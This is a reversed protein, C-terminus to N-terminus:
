KTNLVVSEYDVKETANEVDASTIRVTITAFKEAISPYKKLFENRVSEAEAKLAAENKIDVAASEVFIMPVVGSPERAIGITHIKRKGDELTMPLQEDGWSNREMIFDLMQTDDKYYLVHAPQYINYMMQAYIYALVDDGAEKAEKALAFYAPADKGDYSFDSTDIWVIKWGEDQKACILSIMQSVDKNESLYMAAYIQESGPTLMIYNEDEASKKARIMTESVTLDKLYYADYLTYPNRGEKTSSEIFSTISGQTAGFDKDIFEMIGAASRATLADEFVKKIADIQEKTDDDMQASMELVYNGEDDAPMDTGQDAPTGTGEGLKQGCGTLLLAALGLAAIRMWTKKM